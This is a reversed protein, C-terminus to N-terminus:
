MKYFVMAFFESAVINNGKENLIVYFLFLESASLLCMEQSMTNKNYM